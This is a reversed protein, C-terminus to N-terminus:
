SDTFYTAEQRFSRRMDLLSVQKVHGTDRMYRPLKLDSEESWPYANMIKSPSYMDKSIFSGGSKQLSMVPSTRPGSKDPSRQKVTKSVKGAAPLKMIERVTSREAVAASQNDERPHALATRKLEIPTNPINTSEGDARPTQTVKLHKVHIPIPTPPPTAAAPMELSAEDDITSSAGSYLHYDKKIDDPIVTLLEDDGAATIADDDKSSLASLGSCDDTITTEHRILAAATRPRPPLNSKDFVKTRNGTGRMHPSVQLPRREGASKSRVTTSKFRNFKVPPTAPNRVKPDYHYRWAEDPNIRVIPSRSGGASLVRASRCMGASSTAREPPKYVPNEYPRCISSIFEAYQGRVSSQLDRDSAWACACDSENATFRFDSDISRHQLNTTLEMSQPHSSHKSDRSKSMSSRRSGGVSSRRSSEGASSRRDEEEDADDDDDDDDYDDNDDFDDDTEDVEGEVAGDGRKDESPVDDMVGGGPRRGGSVVKGLSSVTMIKAVSRLWHKLPARKMGASRQQAVEAIENAEKARREEEQLSEQRRVVVTDRAKKARMMLRTAIVFSSRTKAVLASEELPSDKLKPFLFPKLSACSEVDVPDPDFSEQMQAARLIHAEGVGARSTDGERRSSNVHVMAESPAVASNGRTVLSARRLKETVLNSDNVDTDAEEPATYDEDCFYVSSTDLRHQDTHIIALMDRSTDDIITMNRRQSLRAAAQM